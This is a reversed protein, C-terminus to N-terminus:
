PATHVQFVMSDDKFQGLNLNNGVSRDFASIITTIKNLQKKFLTIVM